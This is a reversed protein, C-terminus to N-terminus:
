KLFDSLKSATYTRLGIPTRTKLKDAGHYIARGVRPNTALFKLSAGAAAGKLASEVDGGGAYGLGGGFITSLTAYPSVPYNSGSIPMRNEIVTEIPILETFERNIKQYEKPLKEKLKDNLKRYFEQYVESRAQTAPEGYVFKAQKGTARKIDMADLVSVRDGKISTKIDEGLEALARNINENKGINKTKKEFFDKATADYVKKIDVDVYKNQDTILNQLEKKLSNLKADTKSAMGEVTNADVKHKFVNEVKYGRTKKSKGPRLMANIYQSGFGKVKKRGIDTLKTGAGLGGGFLAALTGSKAAQGVSGTELGTKTGEVIGAETAGAIAKSAIKPLAKKATGKLVVKGIASPAGGPTLYGALDGIVSSVPAEKKLSQRFDRERQLNSKYRNRWPQKNGTVLEAGEQIATNVAANLHDKLGLTASHALNQGAAMAARDVGRGFTNQPAQTRAREWPKTKRQEQAAREWPKM